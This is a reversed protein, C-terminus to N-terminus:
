VLRWRRHTLLVWFFLALGALAWAPHVRRPPVLGPEGDFPIGVRRALAEIDLLHLVPIGAELARAVVGNGAHRAAGPFNLGPRFRLADPDDGLSSQPGGITVLLRAGNAGLLDAKADVMGELGGAELLAVGRSQAVARLRAVAEPALGGGVEGGGGLSYFDARGKLYGGRRLAAEIEPWPLEPHNAGWTSAGLSVVVLTELGAAEAALWASLLLGPFSASSYIAVRDGEKLEAERYWRLFQGAWAPDCATRKSELRGLTTTMDSWEVGVLGCSWPDIDAASATGNADRWSVLFQQAARVREGLAREEPAPGGAAALWWLVALAAALGVLRWRAGRAFGSM